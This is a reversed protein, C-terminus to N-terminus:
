WCHCSVPLLLFLLVVWKNNNKLCFEHHCIWFLIFWWDLDWIFRIELVCIQVYGNMFIDSYDCSWGVIRVTKLCFCSCDYLQCVTEHLGTEGDHRNTWWVSGKKFIILDLLNIWTSIFRLGLAHIINQKLGIEAIYSLPILLLKMMGIRINEFCIFRSWWPM